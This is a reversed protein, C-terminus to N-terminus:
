MCRSDGGSFDALSVSRPLGALHKEGALFIDVGRPYAARNGRWQDLFGAELGHGEFIVPGDLGPGEALWPRRGDLPLVSAVIVTASSDPYRDSGQNLSALPPLEAPSAALIFAAKEAQGGVPCGRHFRLWDGAKRWSPSLWVPTASDLLTLALAAAVPPLPWAPRGERAEFDLARCPRSLCGLALRFVRQSSLGYDEFGPALGPRETM